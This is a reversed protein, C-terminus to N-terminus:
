GLKEFFPKREKFVAYYEFGADILMKEAIDFDAAIDAANHADSGVTIIEGGLERYRKLIFPHPNAHSLGKRLAATNIEIGKGLATIKRLIEDLIERYDLPNYGKEPSYRVVYDIHGYVDFDSFASINEVISEFYRLIGNKNGLEAFYEPYYPDKGDVLHSSGIVFDFNKGDLFARLREGLYKMLGLEVGFLAETKGSFEEKVRLLEAKYADTDLLFEGGPYDFDHHETLCITELGKEAAARVMDRLKDTGDTSFTSHTHFDAKIM